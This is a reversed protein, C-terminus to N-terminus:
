LLWFATEIVVHMIEVCMGCTEMQLSETLVVINKVQKVYMGLSVKQVCASPFPKVLAM